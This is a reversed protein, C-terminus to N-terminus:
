QVSAAQLDIDRRQCVRSTIGGNGVYECVLTPRYRPVVTRYKGVFLWKLSSKQAIFVLHIFQFDKHFEIRGDIRESVFMLWNLRYM